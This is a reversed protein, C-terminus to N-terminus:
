VQLTLVLQHHLAKGHLVMGHVVNGTGCDKSAVVFVSIFLNVYMSANLLLESESHAAGVNIFALFVTSTRIKVSKLLSLACIFLFDNVSGFILSKNLFNLPNSYAVAISRLM